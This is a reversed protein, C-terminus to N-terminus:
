TRAIVSRFCEELVSMMTARGINKTEKFEGLAERLSVNEDNKKTTAM